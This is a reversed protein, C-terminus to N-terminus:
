VTRRRRTHQRPHWEGTVVATSAGAAANSMNEPTPPVPFFILPVLAATMASNKPSSLSSSSTGMRGDMEGSTWPTSADVRTDPFFGDGVDDDDIAVAM